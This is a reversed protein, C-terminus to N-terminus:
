FHSSIGCLRVPSTYLLCCYSKFLASALACMTDPKNFANSRDRICMKHTISFMMEIINLFGQKTLCKNANKVTKEATKVM